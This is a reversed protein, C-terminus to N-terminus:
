VVVLVAVGCGGEPSFVVPHLDRCDAHCPLGLVGKGRVGVPLAYHRIRTYTHARTATAKDLDEKQPRPTRQQTSRTILWRVTTLM